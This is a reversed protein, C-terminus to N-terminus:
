APCQVEIYVTVLMDLTLKTGVGENGVKKIVKVEDVFKEPREYGCVSLRFFRDRNFRM